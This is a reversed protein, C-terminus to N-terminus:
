VSSRANPEKRRNLMKVLAFAGPRDLTIDRQNLDPRLICSPCGRGCKELCDLLNEARELVIALTKFNVMRTALGAGGAARDHLFASVRVEGDVGASVASSPIIEASEVGLLESLAERLAAALTRASEETAEMPLQWEWVDSNKVQALHVHRQIREPADASPCFGDKTLRLTPQWLLPRHRGITDRLNGAPANEMAEARGCDLCVAFGGGQSGAASTIVRGTPDARLRGAGNPASLWVGAHATVRVPDAIVHSLNEYGVHAPQAGLFGAPRLVKRYDLTPHGCKECTKPDSHGLDFAHCVPCSWFTRLDELGSADVGAQWAPLIGESLHVLGDIVVEAGPAYERVAQDLERSACGRRFHSMGNSDDAVRHALNDFIVVDTPFGYAPTFGRRAIEGLLFEGSLRKARKEMGTRADGDPAAVAADLLLRHERRWEEMLSKLADITHKVLDGTEERELVTSEVLSNLRKSQANSWSSELDALFADVQADPMVPESKTTGAGMFSGISKMLSQGGQEGLWIALLAANVHRQVLSKSDFLVRPAVTPRRLFATPDDAVRRDLPLDRCFTLTFAWPEGRRGARGSRQRYNSIAPPVNANIILSVDALDVGMEMTTSCNLLNIRGQKFSEEYRQLTPRAIQASHEQARVYNPFTAIRDHLDTWLGNARLRAVQEDIEIWRSISDRQAPTLGGPNAEPLRPLVIREMTRLPDNPSRGGISYSYPRRTVPCLWADNLRVVAASNFNLKFGGAGTDRAVTGTILEWLANLIVGAKDQDKAVEHDGNIVSYILRVLRKRNNSPSPWRNGKAPLNGTPTNAQHITNLRGFRPAVMPVIWEQMDVALSQRFELDIAAQALGVWGDNDMGVEALPRPVDGNRARNEMDPFTLRLLGMTEPNNQVRPRRFLERYLFMEALKSSDDGMAKGLRRSHWIDGAFNTLDTHAALRQVLKPWLLPTPAAGTEAFLEQEKDDAIHDLGADRLTSIDSELKSIKEPDARPGDQVSHWLFARTLSREAEQQLKAALRAVGQRSDSFTLAKRGGAPLGPADAPPALDDLVGGVANGM